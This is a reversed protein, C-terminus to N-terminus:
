DADCEESTASGTISAPRGSDITGVNREIAAAAAGRHSVARWSRDPTSNIQANKRSRRKSARTNLLKM